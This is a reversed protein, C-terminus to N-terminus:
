MQSYVALAQTANMTQVGPSECIAQLWPPKIAVDVSIPTESISGTLASHVFTLAYDAPRVDSSLELFVFPDPGVEGSAQLGAVDSSPVDITPSGPAVGGGAMGTGDSIVLGRVLAPRAGTILLGVYGGLGRGLITCPGLAHLATDVDAMLLECTYGGGLPRYSAGHGTFDLGWVSGPWAGVIAPVAEPTEEGLGHLLLLRPGAPPGESLCHLALPIRVHRIMHVGLKPELVSSQDATADGNTAANASM